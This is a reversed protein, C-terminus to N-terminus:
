TRNKREEDGRKMATAIDRLVPLSYESIAYHHARIYELLEKSEKYENAEQRTLFLLPHFDLNDKDMLYHGNQAEMYQTGGAVTVYKRGVKVIEIPTICGYNSRSRSFGYALTGVKFKQIDM